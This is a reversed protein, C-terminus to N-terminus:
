LAGLAALGRDLHEPPATLGLRLRAPDGFYAGPAAVVGHDALLRECLADVPGLAPPPELFAVAAADPRVARWGPHADLFTGLRAAAEAARARSRGLVADAAEAVFRAGLSWGPELAAGLVHDRAGALRPVLGAPALAWGARLASLGYAKTLSSTVVFPGDPDFATGVPGALLDRYVEDVLVFVGARAARAGLAALREGELRVGTPNHPDTLVVARTRPGILGALADPDPQWGDEPRRPWDVVRAGLAAATDAMPQYRPREIVVEDGPGVAAALALFNAGTAGPAAVVAGAPVGWRAGVAAALREAGPPPARDLVGEPTTALGALVEAPPPPMGSSGLSWTARAFAARIWTLYPVDPLM